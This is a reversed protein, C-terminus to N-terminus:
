PWRWPCNMGTESRAALRTQAWSAHTNHLAFRKGFPLNTKQKVAPPPPVRIPTVKSLELNGLDPQNKIQQKLAEFSDVLVDMRVKLTEIEDQNKSIDSKNAAAQQLANAINDGVSAGGRLQDIDQSVKDLTQKVDDTMKNTDKLLEKSTLNLERITDLEQKAQKLDYGYLTAGVVLFGGFLAGLITLVLVFRRDLSIQLADADRAAVPRYADPQLVTHCHPCIIADDKIAEKCFRCSAM